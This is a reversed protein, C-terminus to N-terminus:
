LEFVKKQGPFLRRREDLLLGLIETKKERAAADVTEELGSKDWYGARGFLRLLGTEERQVCVRGACSIHERVYTEYQEKAGASLRCPWGLRLAALWAADAESEEAVARPFLRDYSAFDLERNYFCQRYDGGSGHYHTELIRAPTNEVAEEFHEPFFVRAEGADGEGRFVLRVDLAYRQEDLIFKLASRMGDRFRIELRELRCGNFAGSGVDALADSFVLERLQFCRYFAYNGIQEMSGPLCVRVAATRAFAYAAAWRVPEGCVLEPIRIEELDPAQELRVGGKERRYRAGDLCIGDQGPVTVTEM